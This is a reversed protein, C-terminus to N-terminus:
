RLTNLLRIFWYLFSDPLHRGIWECSKLYLLTTGDARNKGEKLLSSLFLLDQRSLPHPKVNRVITLYRYVYRQIVDVRFLNQVSKCSFKRRYELVVDVYCRLFDILPKLHGPGAIDSSLSDDRRKQIYVIDTVMRFTGAHLLFAYVFVKDEGYHLTENFRLGNQRIIETKYLKGWPGEMLVTVPLADDLFREKEEKQYYRDAQHRYEQKRGKAIRLAGGVSFDAAESALRALAGDPLEDDSDVFMVYAGQSHDLGLNRACSVGKNETHFVSIRSDKGAYADCIAGSGDTSGDDVLLLEFDSFSQNLISELCDNLYKETDFVPIIISVHPM